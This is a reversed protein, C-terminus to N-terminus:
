LLLLVILIIKPHNKGAGASVLLMGAPGLILKPWKKVTNTHRSKKTKNYQQIRSKLAVSLILGHVNVVYCGIFITVKLVLM